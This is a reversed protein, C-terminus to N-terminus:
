RLLDSHLRLDEGDDVVLFVEVGVEEGSHEDVFLGALSDVQGDVRSGGSACLAVVINARRKRGDCPLDVALAMENRSRREVFHTALHLLLRVVHVIIKVGMASTLKHIIHVGGVVVIIPRTMKINTREQSGVLLCRLLEPAKTHLM